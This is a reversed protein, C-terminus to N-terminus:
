PIPWTDFWRKARWVWFGVALAMIGRWMVKKSMPKRYEPDGVQVSGWFGVASHWPQKLDAPPVFATFEPKINDYHGCHQLEWHTSMGFNIYGGEHHVKDLAYFLCQSRYLADKGM